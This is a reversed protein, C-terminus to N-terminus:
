MFLKQKREPLLSLKEYCNGREILTEAIKKLYIVKKTTTSAPSTM